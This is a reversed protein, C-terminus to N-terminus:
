RLITIDTKISFKRGTILTVEIVGYYTGDPLAKGNYTGQWTNRYDRSEFVLKGYRNFVHVTVNQLCVYDTYVMWQENQGDGNPTFANRVQICYPIITVNADDSGFCGLDNRVTLTYTTVSGPANKAPSITPQLVNAANLGTAPTWLISNINGGSASGLLTGQEGALIQLDPGASVTVGQNVTVLISYTKTCTGLTATLTYTTNQTPTVTPNLVNPNSLGTAPSWSFSTASSTLNFQASGGKCITIANAGSITLNNTQLVTVQKALTCGLSDKLTITYTGAPVNFSNSAQFVGPNSSISYQYPAIGKTPTATATGNVSCTSNVSSVTFNLTDLVVNILATDKCGGANAASLTYIGSQSVAAPNGVASGNFTYVPTLGSTNYITTLNVTSGSCVKVTTDAGLNPSALVTVQTTDSCNQGGPGSATVTYIYTGPQQPPYVITPNQSVSSFCNPGTWLYTANTVSSASLNISQGICVPGNNSANLTCAVNCNTSGTGGTQQYTITGPQNSFNTVLMIYYQGSVANPIDAIEQFSTSYSCDVINSASIQSCSAALSAFPGWVVFDVDIPAGSTSYQSITISISGSNQIQLFYYAPNPITFLCGYIGGGNTNPQNTINPFTVPTSTSCFAVANSCSGGPGATQPVSACLGFTGNNNNGYEWFRVWITDGPTLNSRIIQPMAGNVSGDDDCAILTLANCNGSYIAMGGDTVVGTQTDVNVNGTCPVVLKFWVDGGQYGACGPPPAGPFGPAGGNTYTTYTCNQNVPILTATCPSINIPPPPPLTVCIGFTGNNNNGYEWFRIWLTSGPTLGTRSILPMLGNPSDDDDCELLTLSSCTGTYVAMGGDTVVGTQTDITVGGGAPVTIKFWVDGGLYISCGPAPVGPSATAGENTFTQYNCTNSPTLEIANCPEDNAPQAFAATFSFLCILIFIYNKMEFKFFSANQIKKYFQEVM